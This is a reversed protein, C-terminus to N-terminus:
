EASNDHPSRPICGEALVLRALASVAIPQAEPDTTLTLDDCELAYSGDDRSLIEGGALEVPADGPRSAAVVSVVLIRVAGEPGQLQFSVVEDTRNLQGTDVGNATLRALLSQVSELTRQVVDIPIAPAQPRCSLLQLVAALGPDAAPARIISDAQCQLYVQQGAAAAQGDALDILRADPPPQDASGDTPGLVLEVPALGPGGVQLEIRNDQPSPPFTAAFGVRHLSRLLPVAWVAPTPASQASEPARPLCGRDGTFQEAAAIVLQQPVNAAGLRTLRGNCTFAMRPFPDVALGYIGTPLQVAQYRLDDDPQDYTVDLVTGLFTVREAVQLTPLVAETAVTLDDPPQAPPSTSSVFLGVLAVAAVMLVGLMVVRLTSHPSVEQDQLPQATHM